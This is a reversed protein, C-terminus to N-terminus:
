HLVLLLIRSSREFRPSFACEGKLTLPFCNFIDGEVFFQLSLLILYRSALHTTEFISHTSQPTGRLVLEIM